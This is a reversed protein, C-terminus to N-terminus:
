FGVILSKPHHTPNPLLHENKLFLFNKEVQRCTTSLAESCAAFWLTCLKIYMHKLSFVCSFPRQGILFCLIKAFGPPAEDLLNERSDKGDFHLWETFAISSLTHTHTHTHTHKTISKLAESILLFVQCKFVESPEHLQSM